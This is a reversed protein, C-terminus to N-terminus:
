QGSQSSSKHKNTRTRKYCSSGSCPQRVRDPNESTCSGGLCASPNTYATETSAAGRHKQSAAYSLGPVAVLTALALAPLVSIKSPMLLGGVVTADHCVSISAINRIWPHLFLVLLALQCNRLIEFSNKM